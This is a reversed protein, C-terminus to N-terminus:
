APLAKHVIGVRGSALRTRSIGAAEAAPILRIRDIEQVLHPRGKPTMSANKHINM